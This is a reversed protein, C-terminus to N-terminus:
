FGTSSLHCSIILCINVGSLPQIGRETFIGYMFNGYNCKKKAMDVLTIPPITFLVFSFFSEFGTGVSVMKKRKDKEWNYEGSLGFNVGGMLGM